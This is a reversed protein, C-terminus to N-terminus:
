YDSHSGGKTHKEGLVFQYIFKNSFHMALHPTYTQVPVSDGLIFNVSSTTSGAMYRPCFTMRFPHTKTMRFPHPTKQVRNSM